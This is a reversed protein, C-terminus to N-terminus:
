QSNAQTGQARPALSSFTAQERAASKSGNHEERRRPVTGVYRILDLEANPLLEPIPPAATIAPAAPRSRISQATAVREATRKSERHNASAEMSKMKLVNTAFISKSRVQVM